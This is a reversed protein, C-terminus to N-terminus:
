SIVHRQTKQRNTKLRKGAAVGAANGNKLRFFMTIHYATHTRIPKAKDNATLAAPQGSVARCTAASHRCDAKRLTAM